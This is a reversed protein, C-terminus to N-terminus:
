WGMNLALRHSICQESSSLIYPYYDSRDKSLTFKLANLTALSRLSCHVGGVGRVGGGGGGDSGSDQLASPVEQRTLLKKKKNTQKNKNQKQLYHNLLM